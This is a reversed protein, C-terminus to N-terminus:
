IIPNMPQALAVGAIFIYIVYEDIAKKYSLVQM